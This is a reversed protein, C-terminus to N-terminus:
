YEAVPDITSILDNRTDTCVKIRSRMIINHLNDYRNCQLYFLLDFVSTTTVSIGIDTTLAPLSVQGHSLLPSMSPQESAYM